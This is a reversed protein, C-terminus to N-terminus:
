KGENSYKTRHVFYNCHAKFLNQCFDKSTTVGGFATAAVLGDSGKEFDKKEKKEATEGNTSLNM